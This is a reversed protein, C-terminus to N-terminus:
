ASIERAKRRRAFRRLVPASWSAERMELLMADRAVDEVAAARRRKQWVVDFLVFTLLFRWVQRLPGRAFQSEIKIQRVAKGCNTDAGVVPWKRRRRL